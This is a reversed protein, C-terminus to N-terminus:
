ELDEEELWIVRIVRNLCEFIENERDFGGGGEKRPSRRKRRERGGGRGRGRGGKRGGTERRREKGRKRRKGGM